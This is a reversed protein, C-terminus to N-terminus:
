DQEEYEAGKEIAGLSPTKGGDDEAAPALPAPPPGCPLGPSPLECNAMSVGSAVMDRVASALDLAPPPVVQPKPSHAGARLEAELEECSLALERHANAAREWSACREDWDQQAQEELVAEATGYAAPLRARKNRRKRQNKTLKAQATPQQPATSTVRPAEESSSYDEMGARYERGGRPELALNFEIEWEAKAKAEAQAQAEAQAEAMTEPNYVTVKFAAGKTVGEPQELRQRHQQQQHQQPKGLPSRVLPEFPQGPLAPTFPIEHQECWEAWSLRLRRREYFGHAAGTLRVCAPQERGDDLIRAPFIRRGTGEEGPHVGSCCARMLEGSVEHKLKYDCHIGRKCPQPSRLHPADLEASEFWRIVNSSTIVPCASSSM